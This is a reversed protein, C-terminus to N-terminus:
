DKLRIVDESELRFINSKKTAYCYSNENFKQSSWHSESIKECSDIWLFNDEKQYSWLDYYNWKEFIIETVYDNEDYYMLLPINYINGDFYIEKKQTDIEIKNDIRPFEFLGWIYREYSLLVRRAIYFDDKWEYPQFYKKIFTTYNWLLNKGIWLEDIEFGIESLVTPAIDLTSALTNNTASVGNLLVFMNKREYEQLPIFHNNITWMQLHDSALVFLTNEFNPHEQAKKLFEWLLFDTCHISNLISDEQNYIPCKPSVFGHPWHTDLTLGYIAFNKESQSLFDFEKYLEDFITEDYIWWGNKPVEFAFDNKGIVKEFWHTKYFVDKWSFTKDAWWIYSLTYNNKKLIDWVCEVWPLFTELWWLGNGWVLLPIGCQSAVMWWITWGTGPLQRVNTFETNQPIIDHLNPTLGPFKENDIYYKEFWELYIYVLNKTEQQRSIKNDDITVYDNYFDAKAEIFDPVSYLNYMNWTFPHFVGALLLFFCSRYLCVGFKHEYKELSKKVVFMFLFPFFVFLFWVIIKDINGLFDSWWIWVSLHFLVAKNIGNGTFLDAVVYCWLLVTYVFLFFLMSRFFIKNGRSYVVALFIFILSLFIM